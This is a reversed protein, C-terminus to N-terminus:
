YGFAKKFAKRSATQMAEFLPMHCNLRDVYPNGKGDKKPVKAASLTTIVEKMQVSFTLSDTYREITKYLDKNEKTYLVKAMHNAGAPSWRM